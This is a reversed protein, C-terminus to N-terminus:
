ETNLLFIDADEQKSPAVGTTPCERAPAASTYYDAGGELHRQWDTLLCATVCGANSAHIFAWSSMKTERGHSKNM